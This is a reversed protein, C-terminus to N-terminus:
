NGYYYVISDILAISSSLSQEKILSIQNLVSQNIRITNRSSLNSKRRKMRYISASNIWVGNVM